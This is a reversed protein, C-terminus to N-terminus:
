KKLYPLPDTVNAYKNEGKRIEFHLHPGTAAGSSGVYGIQQGRSVTDGIKLGSVFRSMHGYVTWYGNNHDIIIHTGYNWRDHQMKVITGNNSAYVPSGYGTGAIDLGAHFERASPNFPYSRWGFYSTLTYGSKTPWGWSTTSGVNPIEKTGVLVIEDKSNKITENSIPNVYAISGNVKQVKQSVKMLGNQGKQQVEENGKIMTDDYKEVRKYEIDKNVVQYEEVVLSIKPNLKTINIPQGDYFINNISNFGENSLFFEEVSIGNKYALDTISDSSSAYVVSTKKKDGYLLYSALESSDNYIKEKVPINTKKITIEDRLYINDVRDGTDKIEEQKNNKYEEYTDKGVFVSIIEDIANNFIDENTVYIVIDDNSKDKVIDYDTYGVAGLLSNTTLTGGSSSKIKFQYGEITCPKKELIADYVETASKYNKDYTNIKKIYIGLPEYINDTYLYINNEEVYEKMYKYESYGIDGLKNSVYDELNSKEGSTLRISNRNSYLYNVINQMRVKIDNDINKKINDFNDIKNNNIITNVRYKEDLDSYVKYADTDDSIINGESDFYKLLQNYKDELMTIEQYFSYYQSNSNINKKMIEHISDIREVDVRYDEVQQKIIEGQSSIYKELEDKSKIVGIKENDLYVQYLTIPKTNKRYNFQLFFVFVGILFIIIYVVYKKM